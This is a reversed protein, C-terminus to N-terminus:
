ARAGDNSRRKIGRQFNCRSCANILLV